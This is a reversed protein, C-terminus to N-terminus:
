VDIECKEVLFQRAAATGYLKFLTNEQFSSARGTQQSQQPVLLLFFDPPIGTAAPMMPPDPNDISKSDKYKENYAALAKNYADLAEQPPQMYTNYITQEIMPVQDGSVLFEMLGGVDPIFMKTNAEIFLM